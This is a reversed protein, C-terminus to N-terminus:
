STSFASLVTSGDVVWIREFKTKTFKISASLPRNKRTVWRAQLRPILEMMVQEFVSAPFELFRKSLAQQSIKVSSCWLLDERNLLRCLERVSPVQRWLLTLVAAIMLPLGLIRERLGLQKYVLPTLLESLVQAMVENEPAPVNYKRKHDPNGVRPNGM